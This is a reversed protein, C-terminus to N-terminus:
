RSMSLRARLSAVSQVMYHGRWSAGGVRAYDELVGYTAFGFHKWLAHARSDERVDLVLQEVDLLEAREVIKKLALEVLRTGRFSPHVVGKSLEARHRCNHIRNLSLVVMMVPAGNARGVLVHAEDGRVKRELEAAFSDVESPLLPNAYGLTGGDGLALNVLTAIGDVIDRDFTTIWQANVTSHTTTAQDPM